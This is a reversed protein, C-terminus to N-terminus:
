KAARYTPDVWGRVNTTHHIFRKANPKIGKSAHKRKARRAYKAKAAMTSSPAIKDFQYIGPEMAKARDFAVIEKQVSTPLDFRVIKDEYEVWAKTRFVFAAEVGPLQRECARVFACCKSNKQKAREIDQPIVEIRISEKADVIKKNVEMARKSIYTTM